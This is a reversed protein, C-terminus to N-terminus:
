HPQSRLDSDRNLHIKNPILRLKCALNYLSSSTQLLEGATTNRLMQVLFQCEGSGLKESHHCERPHCAESTSNFSGEIAM